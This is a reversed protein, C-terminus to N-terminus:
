YELSVVFENSTLHEQQAIEEYDTAQEGTEM